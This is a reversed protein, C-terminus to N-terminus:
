REPNLEDYGVLRSYPLLGERLATASNELHQSLLRNLQVEGGAREDTEPSIWFLGTNSQGTNAVFEVVPLRTGELQQSFANTNGPSSPPNSAITPLIGPDSGQSQWTNLGVVTVAAVSAAVAFGAMGTGFLSRRRSSPASDTLPYSAPTPLESQNLRAKLESEAGLAEKGPGSSASAKTLPTINSYTPEDAIAACIRAAVNEDPRIAENKMVDRILHYRAWKGRLEQDSCIGAVCESPNLEHWEGDMLQSLKEAKGPTKPHEM